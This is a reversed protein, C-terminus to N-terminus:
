WYFWGGLTSTCLGPVWNKPFLWIVMGTRDHFRTTRQHKQFLQLHHNKSESKKWMGLVPPYKIKFIEFAWFQHNNFFFWLVARSKEQGELRFVSQLYDTTTYSLLFYWFWRQHDIRCNLAYTPLFYWIASTALDQLKFCYITIICCWFWCHYFYQPRPLTPFIPILLPPQNQWKLCLYIRFILILLAPWNRGNLAILASTSVFYWFWCHQDIEAM